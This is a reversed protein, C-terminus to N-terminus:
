EMGVHEVILGAFIGCAREKRATYMLDHHIERDVLRVLRHFPFQDAFPLETCRDLLPQHYIWRAMTELVQTRHFQAFSLAARCSLLTENCLYAANLVKAQVAPVQVHQRASAAATWHNQKFNGVDAIHVVLHLHCFTKSCYLHLLM